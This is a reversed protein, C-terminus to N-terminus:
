WCDGDGRWNDVRGVMGERGATMSWEVCVLAM